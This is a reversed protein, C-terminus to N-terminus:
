FEFRLNSGAATPQVTLRLKRGRKTWAGAGGPQWGAARLKGDMAAAVTAVEAPAAFVATAGGDPRPLFDVLSSPRYLPIDAPFGDPLAGALAAPNRRQEVRDDAISYAADPAATVEVTPLEAAREAAPPPPPSCAALALLSLPALVSPRSQARSM